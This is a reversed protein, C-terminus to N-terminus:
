HRSRRRDIEERPHRRSRFRHLNPGEVTAASSPSRRRAAPKRAGRVHRVPQGRDILRLRAGTREGPQDGRPPRRLRDGGAPAPEPESAEACRGPGTAGRRPCGADEDQGAVGARCQAALDTQPEHPAGGAAAHRPLRPAPKGVGAGEEARNECRREPPGFPARRLGRAARPRAPWVSASRTGRASAAREREAKPPQGVSRAAAERGGERGDVPDRKARPVAPRM